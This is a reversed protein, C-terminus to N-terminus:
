AKRKGKLSFFHCSFAVFSRGISIIKKKRKGKKSRSSKKRREHEDQGQIWSSKIQIKKKPQFTMKM